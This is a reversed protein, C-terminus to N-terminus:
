DVNIHISSLNLSPPPPFSLGDQSEAAGSSLPDLSHEYRSQPLSVNGPGVLHSLPKRLALVGLLIVSISGFCALSVVVSDTFHVASALILAASLHSVVSM